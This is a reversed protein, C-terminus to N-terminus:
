RTGARPGLPPIVLAAGPRPRRPDPVTNAEAIARWASPDGYQAAAIDTLTQGHVVVHVRTHDASQLNLEALQQKLTKYERLTLSVTARLPIGRPSFLTFKRQVQEAVATFSLGTGWSVKFRPPAHLAPQIKVLQYVPRLQPTVDTAGSGTGGKETSDFLLEMTLQENQGHIFQLLPSDLGPIGIEAILAAKTMSYDTPNFRAEFRAPLGRAADVAQKDLIEFVVKTLQPM